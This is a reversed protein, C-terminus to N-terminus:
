GEVMLIVAYLILAAVFVSFTFIGIAVIGGTKTAIGVVMSMFVFLLILIGILRKISM